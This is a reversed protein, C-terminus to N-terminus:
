RKNEKWVAETILRANMLSQGYKEHIMKLYDMRAQELTPLPWDKLNFTARFRREREDRIHRSLDDLADNSMRALEHIVMDCEKQTENQMPMHWNLLLM